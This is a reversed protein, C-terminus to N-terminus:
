PQRFVLQSFRMLEHAFSILRPRALFKNQM